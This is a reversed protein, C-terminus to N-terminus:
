RTQLSERAMSKFLSIFHGVREYSDAEALEEDTLEGLRAKEALESMRSEDTEKFGMALVAEAAPRELSPDDPSIIRSLIESEAASVSSFM